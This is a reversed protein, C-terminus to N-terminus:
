CAMWISRKAFFKERILETYCHYSSSLVPSAKMVSSLFLRRIHNPSTQEQLQKDSTGWSAQFMKAVMYLSMKEARYFLTVYELLRIWNNILTAMETRTDQDPYPTLQPLYFNSRVAERGHLTQGQTQLQSSETSPPSGLSFQEGATLFPSLFQYQVGLKFPFSVCRCSKICTHRKLTLWLYQCKVVWVSISRACCMLLCPPKCFWVLVIHSFFLLYGQSRQSKSVGLWSTRLDWMSM